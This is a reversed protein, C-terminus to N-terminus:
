CILFFFIVRIPKWGSFWNIHGGKSTEAYIFHSNKSYIEAPFICDLKTIPDDAAHLILTPINVHKLDEESVDAAKFYDWADIFGFLKAHLSGYM